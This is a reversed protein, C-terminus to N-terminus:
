AYPIVVALILSQGTLAPAITIRQKKSRNMCIGHTSSIKYDGYAIVTVIGVTVQPNLDTHGRRYVAAVINGDFADPAIGYSHYKGVTISVGGAVSYSRGILHGVSESHQRVSRAFAHCHPMYHAGVGECPDVM